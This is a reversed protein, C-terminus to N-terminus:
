HEYGDASLEPRTLFNWLREFFPQGFHLSLLILHSSTRGVHPPHKLIPNDLGTRLRAKGGGGRIQSSLSQPCHEYGGSTERDGAESISKSAIILM